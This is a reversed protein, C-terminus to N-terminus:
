ATVGQPKLVVKITGDTKKQFNRYAAPAEDISVEHTMLDTVGLPDSPEEVIPLLEDTWRCTTPSWTWPAWRTPSTRWWRCSRTM